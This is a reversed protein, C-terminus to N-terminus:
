LLSRRTFPSVEAGVRDSSEEVVATRAKKRSVSAPPITVKIGVSSPPLSDLPYIQEGVPLPPLPLPFPLSVRVQGATLICPKKHRSNM